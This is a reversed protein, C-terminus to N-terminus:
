AGGTASPVSEISAQAVMNKIALLQEGQAYQLYVLLAIGGACGLLLLLIILENKNLGITPKTLARILYNNWKSADFGSLTEFDATLVNGREDDVFVNKVGQADIIARGPCVLRREEKDSGKFILFGTEIKGLRYYFNLPTHVHILVKKGRSMKARLWPFLYGKSLFSLFFLICFILSVYLAMQLLVAKLFEDM